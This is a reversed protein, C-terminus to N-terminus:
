INALHGFCCFVHPSDVFVCESVMRDKENIRWLDDGLIIYVTIMVHVVCACVHVMCTYMCMHFVIAQEVLM